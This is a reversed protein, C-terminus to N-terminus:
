LLLCCVPVYHTHLLKAGPDFRSELPTLERLFSLCIFERYLLNITITIYNIVNICHIKTTECVGLEGKEGKTWEWQSM